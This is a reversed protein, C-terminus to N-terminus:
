SFGPDLWDLTQSASPMCFALQTGVILSSSRRPKMM